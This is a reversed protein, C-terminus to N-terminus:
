DRAPSGSPRRVSPLRRGRLVRVGVASGYDSLEAGVRADARARSLSRIRGMGVPAAGMRLRLVARDGADRRVRRRRDPRAAPFSLRGADDLIMGTFSEIMM